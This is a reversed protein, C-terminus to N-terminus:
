VMEKKIIITYEYNSIKLNKKPLRYMIGFRLSTGEKDEILRGQSVLERCKKNRTPTTLNSKMRCNNQNIWTSYCYDVQNLKSKRKIADLIEKYEKEIEATSKNKNIERLHYSVTNSEINLLKAMKSVTYGKKQYDIIKERTRDKPIYIGIQNQRVYINTAVIRSPYGVIKSIEENTKGALHLNYIRSILTTQDFDEHKEPKNTRPKCKYGTVIPTKIKETKIAKEKPLKNKKPKKSSINKEKRSAKVFEKVFQNSNPDTKVKTYYRCKSIPDYRSLVEVTEKNYKNYGAVVERAKLTDENLYNM